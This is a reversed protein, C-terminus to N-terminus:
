QEASDLRGMTGLGTKLGDKGDAREVDIWCGTSQFEERRVPDTQKCSRRKNQSM